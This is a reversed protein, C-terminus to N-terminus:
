AMALWVAGSVELGHSELLNVCARCTAGTTLVDDVLVVSRGECRQVAHASVAFVDRLALQRAARTAATLSPKHIRRELISADMPLRWGAAFGEALAEAQNFGRKWRRRWHLPIPVLLPANPPPRWRQAVWHGLARGASPFGGYKVRHVVQETGRKACLRFGLGAVPVASKAGVLIRTVADDECVPWAWRCPPCVGAVENGVLVDGCTWCRGQWL